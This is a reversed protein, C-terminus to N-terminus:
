YVYMNNKKEYGVTTTNGHGTFIKTDEPLAFIKEIISKRLTEESGTPFDTRGISGWFITDGSFLVGENEFYYCCGGKTHGPTMIVRCFTGGFEIKDGQSLTKDYPYIEATDFMASLNYTSNSAVEAEEKSLYIDGGTTNKIEAAGCMHDFHAHTQLIAKIKLHESGIYQLTKVVSNGPDIVVAENNEGSVVYCNEGMDPSTFGKIRM